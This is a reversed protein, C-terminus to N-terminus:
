GTRVKRSHASSDIMLDVFFCGVPVETEVRALVGRGEGGGGSSGVAQVGVWGGVCVCGHVIYVTETPPPRATRDATPM